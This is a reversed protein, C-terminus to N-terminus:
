SNVDTSNVYRDTDRQYALTGSPDLENVRRKIASLPMGQYDVSATERSTSSVRRDPGEIIYMAALHKELQRKFETDKNQYDNIAQEAAYEADDIFSQIQTDTLDTAILGGGELTVDDPSAATM